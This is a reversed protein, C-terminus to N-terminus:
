SEEGNDNEDSTIEDLLDLQGEVEAEDDNGPVNM